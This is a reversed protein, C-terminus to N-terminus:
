IPQVFNDGNYDVFCDGNNDVLRLFSESELGIEKVDLLSKSYYTDAIIRYIGVDLSSAFDYSEFYGTKKYTNNLILFNSFSYTMAINDFAMKQLRFDFSQLNSPFSFSLLTSRSMLLNAFFYNGLKARPIQFDMKQDTFKM